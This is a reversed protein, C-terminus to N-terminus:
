HLVREGDDQSSEDHKDQTQEAVQSVAQLGAHIMVRAIDMGRGQMYSKAQKSFSIRVMPTSDNGGESQLVVDGNELEVIELFATSM